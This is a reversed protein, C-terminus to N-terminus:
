TPLRGYSISTLHEGRIIDGYMCHRRDFIQPNASCLLSSVAAAAYVVDTRMHPPLAELIAKEDLASQTEYLFRHFQTLRSQLAGPIERTICFEKLQNMKRSYEDRKVRLSAISTFMFGALAGFIVNFFLEAFLQFVKELLTEAPEQRTFIDSLSTLYQTVLPPGLAPDDWGRRLVWGRSCEAVFM